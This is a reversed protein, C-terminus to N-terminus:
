GVRFALRDVQPCWHTSFRQLPRPGWKPDVFEVEGYAYAALV